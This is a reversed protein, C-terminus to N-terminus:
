KGQLHWNLGEQTKTKAINRLEKKKTKKQGCGGRRSHYIDSPSMPDVWSKIQAFIVHKTNCQQQKNNQLYINWISMFNYM